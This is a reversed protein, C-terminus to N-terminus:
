YKSDLNNKNHLEQWIAGIGIPPLQNQDGVLVLQSDNPLADLLAKMLTLDVMSMEDVVLLDLTLPSNKNIRFGSPGAKLWSHLTQCSIKALVEQYDTEHKIGQQLSKQLRRAAKGTPASLGIKVNPNNSIARTIMKIVTSTKGTGPGGSLLIVNHNEIAIVASRQERNLGKILSDTNITSTETKIIPPQNQKKLLM